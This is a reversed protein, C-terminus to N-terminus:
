EGILSLWSADLEAWTLVRGEGKQLDFADEPLKIMGEEVLIDAGSLGRILRDRIYQIVQTQRLVEDRIQLTTWDPYRAAIMSALASIKATAESSSGTGAVYLDVGRSEVFNDGFTVGDNSVEYMAAQIILNEPWLGDKELQSRIESLDSNNNGGAVLFLKDPFERVLNILEHVNEKQVEGPLLPSFPEIIHVGVYETPELKLDVGEPTLLESSDESQSLGNDSGIVVVKVSSSEDNTIPRREPRKDLLLVDLEGVQLSMNIVKSPNRGEALRSEDDKRIMDAIAPGSINLRIREGLSIQDFEVELAPVLEELAVKSLEDSLIAEEPNIAEVFAERTMSGHGSFLSKLVAYVAFTRRTGFDMRSFQVGSLNELDVLRPAQNVISPDFDKGLRDELLSDTITTQDIFLVQEYIRKPNLQESQKESQTPRTPLLDTQAPGVGSTLVMCTAFLGVTASIVRAGLKRETYVNRDKLESM